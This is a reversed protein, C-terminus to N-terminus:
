PVAGPRACSASSRMWRTGTGSGAFARGSRPRGRYRAPDDAVVEIRAVGEARLQDVVGPVSLPGDVAQGGTMAVADNFLLKYTINVGAAVAARIALLGSHYYTGDGLNAFLHETDTFPAQGIWPVGEGGMQTFTATHPEIWQAMYHCGIGAMARSGEPVPTSSNHPCGACFLPQRTTTPPKEHLAAERTRLFELYREM